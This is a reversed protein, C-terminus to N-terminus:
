QQMPNETTLCLTHFCLAPFSHARLHRRVAPAVTALHPQILSFGANDPKLHISNPTWFHSDWYGRLADFRWCSSEHMSPVFPHVADFLLVNQRKERLVPM